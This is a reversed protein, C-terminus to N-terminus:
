VQKWRLICTNKSNCINCFFSMVTFFYVVPNGHEDTIIESARRIFDIFNFCWWLTFIVM